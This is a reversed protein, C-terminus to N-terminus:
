ASSPEKVTATVRLALGGPVAVAVALLGMVTASASTSVSLMWGVSVAVSSWDKLPRTALKTLLLAALAVGPSKVAVMAQPSPVLLAPVTPMGAPVLMM